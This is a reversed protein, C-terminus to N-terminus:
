LAQSKGIAETTLAAMIAAMLGVIRGGTIVAIVTIGNTAPGGAIGM